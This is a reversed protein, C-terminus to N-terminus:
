LFLLECNLNYAAIQIQGKKEWFAALTQLCSWVVSASKEEAHRYKATLNLEALLWIHRTASFWESMDVPATQLQRKVAEQHLSQHTDAAAATM